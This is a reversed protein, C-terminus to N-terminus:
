RAKEMCNLVASISWGCSNLCYGVPSKDITRLLDVYETVRGWPSRDISKLLRKARFKHDCTVRNDYDQSYKNM